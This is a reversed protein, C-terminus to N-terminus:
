CSVGQRPQPLKDICNLASGEGCCHPDILAVLWKQVATQRPIPHLRRSNQIMDRTVRGIYMRRSRCSGPKSPWIPRYRSSVQTSEVTLLRLRAESPAPIMTHRQLQPLRHKFRDTYIHSLSGSFLHRARLVNRVEARTVSTTGSSELTRM